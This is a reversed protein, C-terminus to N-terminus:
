GAEFCQYQTVRSFILHYLGLNEYGVFSDIADLPFNTIHVLLIHMVGLGM